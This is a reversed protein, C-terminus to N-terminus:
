GPGVNALREVLRVLSYFACPVLLGILLGSFAGMLYDLM